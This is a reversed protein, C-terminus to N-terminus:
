LICKCQAYAHVTCAYISRVCACLMCISMKRTCLAHTHQTDEWFIKFIYPNEHTCQAYAYVPCAHFSRVCVDKMHISLTCTCPAWMHETDEWFLNLIYPNEHTSFWLIPAIGSVASCVCAPQMRISLMHMDHSFCKSCISASKREIFCFLFCRFSKVDFFSKLPMITGPSSIKLSMLCELFTHICKKEWYFLVFFM